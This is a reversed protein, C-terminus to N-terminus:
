GALISISLSLHEDREQAAVVDAWCSQSCRKLETRIMRCGPLSRALLPSLFGQALCSAGASPSVSSVPTTVPEEFDLIVQPAAVRRGLKDSAADFLADAYTQHLGLGMPLRWYLLELMQHEICALLAVDVDLVVHLVDCFQRPRARQSPHLAPNLRFPFRSRSCPSPSPPVQRLSLTDDRCTKCSIISAGLLMPRISSARMTTPHSLLVREVCAYAMVLEGVTMRFREVLLSVYQHMQHTEPLTCSMTDVLNPRHAPSSASQPSTQHAANSRRVVRIPVFGNHNDTFCFSPIAAMTVCLPTRQEDIAAPLWGPVTFEELLILLAAAVGLAAADQEEDLSEIALVDKPLPTSWPADLVGGERM